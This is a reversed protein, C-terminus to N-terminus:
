DEVAMVFRVMTWGRSEVEAGDVKLPLPLPSDEELHGLIILRRGATLHSLDASRAIRRTFHVPTWLFDHDDDMMFDPPPLLNFFTMIELTRVITSAGPDILKKTEEDEKSDSRRGGMEQMHAGLFGEAALTRKEWGNPTPNDKTKTRANPNLVKGPTQVLPLKSQPRAIKLTDGNKWSRNEANWLEAMKGDGSCYILRVNTLTGPLSHTLEGTPWGSVLKVSGEPPMWRRSFASMDLIDCFRAEFQKATSRMPVEDAKSPELSNIAYRREDVFSSKDGDPLGPSGMTNHNTRDRGAEIAVDITGHKPVFLSFFSHTRIQAPGRSSSDIDVISFHEVEALSPRMWMAALWTVASFVAVIGAYILWSHHLMRRSKLAAYLGPGAVLWYAGFLVVAAFVTVAAKSKMAIRTPIFSGLDMTERSPVPVMLRSETLKTVDLNGPSRWGFVTQWLRPLGYRVFAVNSAMRRDTIDLGILTVRGFGYQHAAVVVPENSPGAIQGPTLLAVDQSEADTSRTLPRVNFRINVLQEPRTPERLPDSTEYLWRPVSDIEVSDGIKVPPLLDAVKPDSWGTDISSLIVVLHGGRRVWEKIAAIPVSPDAPSRANGPAWILADLLSLGFWRDPLLSPDIGTIFDIPEHQTHTDRFSALGMLGGGTIGIAAARLPLSFKPAVKLSTIIQATDADVARITWGDSPKSNIAPMAYLRLSTSGGAAVVVNERRAIVLDGDGDPAIWDVTLKRLVGETNRLTVRMPAWTGPRVIGEFGVDEPREIIIQIPSDQARAAEVFVFCALLSLLCISWRFTVRWPHFM